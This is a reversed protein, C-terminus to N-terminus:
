LKQKKDVFFPVTDYQVYKAKDEKSIFIKSGNQNDQIYIQRDKKKKVM